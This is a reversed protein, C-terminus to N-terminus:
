KEKAILFGSVIIVCIGLIALKSPFEGWFILGFLLGFLIESYGITAVIGAKRTASYAKTIYIQFVAGTIGVLLLWLWYIGRPLSFKSASEMIGFEALIMMLIGMITACSMFSLVIVAGSYHKRLAHMSTYALGACAGGAIGVIDYITIGIQPQMVLLIGFFGFFVAFWGKFSLKEGLFASCFVATFIPATKQFTMATALDIKTINYTTLVVGMAGIVGRFLLLYPRGGSGFAFGSKKLMFLMILIGIANRFFVIESSSIKAGSLKVFVGNLGFLFCAILMYYIDLHRILFKRM